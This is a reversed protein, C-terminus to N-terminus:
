QRFSRLLYYLGYLLGIACLVVLIILALDAPLGLYVLQRALWPILVRYVMPKDTMSSVILEARWAQDYTWRAYERATLIVMSLLSMKILARRHQPKMILSLGNSVQLKIQV